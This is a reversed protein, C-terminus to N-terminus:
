LCRKLDLLDEIEHQIEVPCKRRGPNYFIRDMGTNFAGRIDTEVNDGIMISDELTSNAREVAHHFIKSNPKPIGICESTVTEKFFPKIKSSIMKKETSGKFGNTIIHLIYKESLYELIEFTNPLVHPKSPCIELFLDEMEYSLNRDEIGLHGLTKYFRIERLDEKKIEGRNFAGWLERNVLGYVEVLADVKINKENLRFEAHLEMLTERANKEYDWLTHDLDFFIHKYTKM